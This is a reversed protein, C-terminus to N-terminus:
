LVVEWFKFEGEFLIVSGRDSRITFADGCSSDAGHTITFIGWEPRNINRISTTCPIANEITLPATRIEIKKRAM